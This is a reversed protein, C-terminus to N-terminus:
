AMISNGGHYRHQQIVICAGPKLRLAKCAKHDICLEVAEAMIIWHIGVVTLVRILDIFPIFCDLSGVELWMACYIDDCPGVCPLVIVNKGM